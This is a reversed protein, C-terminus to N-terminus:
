AFGLFQELSSMGQVALSSIVGLVICIILLGKILTDNKMLPILKSPSIAIILLFIDSSIMPFLNVILLVFVAYVFYWSTQVLFVMVEGRPNLGLAIPIHPLMLHYFAYGAM